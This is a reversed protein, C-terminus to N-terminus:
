CAAPGLGTRGGPRETVSLAGDPRAVGPSMRHAAPRGPAWWSAGRGACAAALGTAPIDGCLISAAPGMRNTAGGAGASISRLVEVSPRFCRPPFFPGVVAVARHWWTNWWAVVPAASLVRFPPTTKYGMAGAFLARDRCRVTDCHGDIGAS